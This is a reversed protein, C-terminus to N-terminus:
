ERNFTKGSLSKKYGNLFNKWDLIKKGSQQLLEINLLSDRAKVVIGNAKDAFIIKGEKVNKYKKFDIRDNVKIKYINIRNKDLFTYAVPWKVFARVKNIVNEGNDQWNILGDEKKILKCYTAKTDDQPIAKLQKNEIKELLMIISESAIKSALEEISNEDDDPLIDFPKQYLIDGTDMKLAIKQITLGSKKMGQLIAAQIPSPGRLEPLLSPHINIGGMKAVSFFEKQLIVGYGFIVFLDAKLKKLKEILEISIKEPKYVQIDQEEAAVSIISPILKGSRGKPRDPQTIVAVIKHYRVLAYFTLLAIKDSSLFIIKM